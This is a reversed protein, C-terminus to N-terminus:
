WAPPRTSRSKRPRTRRLKRSAAANIATPSAPGTTSANNACTVGAGSAYRIKTAPTSHGIAQSSPWVTGTSVLRSRSSRTPARLPAANYQDVSPDKRPESDSDSSTM